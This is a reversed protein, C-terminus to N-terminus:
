SVVQELWFNVTRSDLENKLCLIFNAGLNEKTLPSRQRLQFARIRQTLVLVAYTARLEKYLVSKEM